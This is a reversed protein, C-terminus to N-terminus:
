PDVILVSKVPREVPYGQSDLQGLYIQGEYYLSASSGGDLNLLKAAGLSNAFDALEMLTMGPADPRQAAMILLISEDAKLAIASRANPQVSGLADRILEGNKYDTFAETTATSQPLLRPGAGLASELICNNPLPTNHFVIDSRPQNDPGCRYRRFESRNLIQPLYPQLDLNGTLRENDAPNGAAQGNVVLHSTTKGNQPDFFGGNLVIRAKKQDAFDAVTSLGDPAVAVRLPTNPPLSIVHVTASMLEYAQYQIDLAQTPESPIDLTPPPATSQDPAAQQSQLAPKSPSLVPQTLPLASPISANALFPKDLKSLGLWVVSIGLTTLLGWLLAPVSAKASNSEAKSGHNPAAPPIPEGPTSPPQQPSSKDPQM